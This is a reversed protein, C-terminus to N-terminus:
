DQEPYGRLAAPLDEVSQYDKVWEQEEHKWQNFAMIDLFTNRAAEDEFVYQTISGESYVVILFPKDGEIQKEFFIVYPWNGLFHCDQSGWVAIAQWGDSEVINAVTYGDCFVCKNWITDPMVEYEKM